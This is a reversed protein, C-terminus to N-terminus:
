IVQGELERAAAAYDGFLNKWHPLMESALPRKAPDVELMQKLRGFVNSGFQGRISGIQQLVVEDTFNETPVCPNRGTFLQVLVLGLQFVDAKTTLPTGDRLYLVLDPVRYYYPMGPGVSSRLVEDTIGSGDEEALVKMLGFDGLVCTKGKVFLNAPKIDRHVVQPSLSELKVLAAVLQVSYMLKEGFALTRRMADALTEPLYEAVIFPHSKRESVKFVGKDFVRMIGPHDMNELFDQERLFSQLRDKRLIKQFIKMAMFQGDYEGDNAYVLFTTANGGFGLLQVVKYWSGSEGQIGQGPEIWLAM